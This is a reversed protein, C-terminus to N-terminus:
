VLGGRGALIGRIRSWLLALNHSRAAELIKYSGSFAKRLELWKGYDESHYVSVMINPGENYPESGTLGQRAASTRDSWRGSAKAFNESGKIHSGLAAELQKLVMTQWVVMNANVATSGAM